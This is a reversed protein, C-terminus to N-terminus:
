TYHIIKMLNQLFLFTKKQKTENNIKINAQM